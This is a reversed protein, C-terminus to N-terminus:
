LRPQPAAAAQMETSAADLDNGQVNEKSRPSFIMQSNQTALSEANILTTNLSLGAAQDVTNNKPQADNNGTDKQMEIDTLM